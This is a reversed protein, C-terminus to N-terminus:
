RKPSRTLLRAFLDEGEALEMVLQVQVSTANTNHMCSAYSVQFETQFIECLSVCNPHDVAKMAQIEKDTVSLVDVGTDKRDILKVAM